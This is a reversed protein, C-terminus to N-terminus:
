MVRGGGGGVDDDDDDDAAAAVLRLRPGSCHSRQVRLAAAGGAGEVEWGGVARRGGRAVRGCSGRREDRSGEFRLPRMVRRLPRM